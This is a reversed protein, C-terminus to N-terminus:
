LINCKSGKNKSRYFLQLNRRPTLNLEYAINRGAKSPAELFLSKSSAGKIQSSTETFYLGSYYEAKRQDKQQSLEGDRFIFFLRSHAWCSNKQSAIEYCKLAVQWREEETLKRENPYFGFVTQIREERRRIEEELSANHEHIIISITSLADLIKEEPWTDREFMVGMAFLADANRMEVGTQIVEPDYIRSNRKDYLYGESKTLINSFTGISYRNERRARDLNQQRLIETDDQDNQIIAQSTTSITMNFFFLFTFIKLSFM